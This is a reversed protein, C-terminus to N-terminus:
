DIQLAKMTLTVRGKDDFGLAKVKVIRGVKCNAM